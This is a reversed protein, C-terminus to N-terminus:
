GDIGEKALRRKFEAFREGSMWAFPEGDLLVAVAGPSREPADYFDIRPPPHVGLAEITKLAAKLDEATPEPWLPPAATNDAVPGKQASPRPTLSCTLAYSGSRCTGGRPRPALFSGCPCWLLRGAAGPCDPCTASM